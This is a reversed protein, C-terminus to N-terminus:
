NELSRGGTIYSPFFHDKVEVIKGSKVLDILAKMPYGNNKIFILLDKKTPLNKEIYNYILQKFYELKLETQVSQGSQVSNQFIDGINSTDWKKNNHLSNGKDKDIKEKNNKVKTFNKSVKEPAYIEEVLTWPTWLTWTSSFNNNKSQNFSIKFTPEYIKKLEELQRWSLEYLRKGGVKKNKLGMSRTLIIGVRTPSWIKEFQRETLEKREEVLIVKLCAYVDSSTFTIILEGSITQQGETNFLLELAELISREEKYLEERRKEMDELALKFINEYVKNGILKAIALLPRWLERARGELPIKKHIQIAAEYVEWARTLRALYLEERINEFEIPTPDEGSPSPDRAIKMTLIISRQKLIERLDETTNFVVPAYSELMELIWREKKDRGVRPIKLGKKYGASIIKILRSSLLSEDIGFTPGFAEFGRYSSADSPDLVALGRRSAYTILLMLRTKGSGYPGYIYLRPFATFLDYYYTAIIWCSILDYLRPDWHFNVYLKAKERIDLYIEKFSKSIEGKMFRELTEKKMLTPIIGKTVLTKQIKIPRGEFEIRDDYLIPKIKREILVGNRFKSYALYPDISEIVRIRSVEDDEPIEKRTYLFTGEGVIISGNFKLIFGHPPATVGDSMVAEIKITRGRKDEVTWSLRPPLSSEIIAAIAALFDSIESEDVHNELFEIIATPSYGVDYMCRQEHVEGNPAILIVNYYETNPISEIKMTFGKEELFDRAEKFSPKNIINWRGMAM